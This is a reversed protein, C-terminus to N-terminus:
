DNLLLQNAIFYKILLNESKSLGIVENFYDILKLFFPKISESNFGPLKLHLRLAKNSEELWDTVWSDIDTQPSLILKYFIDGLEEKCSDFHKKLGVNLDLDQFEIEMEVLNYIQIWEYKKISYEQIINKFLCLNIYYSFTILLNTEVDSQTFIYHISKTLAQHLEEYLNNDAPDTYLGYRISNQPYPLFLGILNRCEKIFILDENKFYNKFYFDIIKCTELETGKNVYYAIRINEGGSYNFQILHYQVNKKLQSLELLSGLASLILKWNQKSTFISTKIWSMDKTKSLIKASIKQFDPLVM